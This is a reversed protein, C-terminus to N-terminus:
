NDIYKHLQKSHNFIKAYYQKVKNQKYENEDYDESYKLKYIKCYNIMIEELRYDLESHTLM